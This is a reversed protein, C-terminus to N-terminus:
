AAAEYLEVQLELPCDPLLRALRCAEGHHAHWDPADPNDRCYGMELAILRQVQWDTLPYFHVTTM